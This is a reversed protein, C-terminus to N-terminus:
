GRRKVVGRVPTATYPDEAWSHKPYRIKLERRVAPYTNRWFSELDQTVQVPRHAPSLLHMLVKTRGDNISPTELWGFVEQLRVALVPLGGHINYELRIQSGTPVTLKAPALREVERQLEYPLSQELLYRLDLKAFDAARRVNDVELWDELRLLLAEDTFEPFPAGRWLHLSQVRAQYARVAESWVLLNPNQRVAGFLVARKSEPAFELLPTTELVLEGVKTQREAKLAGEKSDWHLVDVSKALPLVDQSELSACLYVKGEELGSELNAVVLWPSGQLPDANHLRVGRGLALKYRLKESDRLKAIRDPYALAVMQGLNAFEGTELRVALLKAWQKAIQEVRELRSKDANYPRQGRRFQRLAEVRLALDASDEDLFDREELIACVDAALAKDHAELALHALRPHAPFRLMERGRPTIRGNELAALSTLLKQAQELAARSPPTVWPLTDTGWAALELALPALDSDLIEPKRQRELSAHQAQTWLRYAVGSNTRGARGSRQTAADQTVRVTALRTLSSAPDFRPVRAYGSDVVIRVGEITLSTEAISTALVVRRQSTPLIACNQAELSLDGYLPLVLAGCGELLEACRLIEGAGPLFALVDGEDTELCRLVAQAVRTPIPAEPERLAYRIELPFSQGEATLVPAALQSSLAVSDLTASMVIINLEPRLERQVERCLALALDAHLSREHFEDFIVCDVGELLPDDQLRRTLLGETLVLLRTASSVQREFRVAYGVRQGIKENLLQAMRAAVSRAALRRPELLLINKGQELLFLPLLTSKGAGPPAEIIVTNHQKLANQLEPLITQIPLFKESM